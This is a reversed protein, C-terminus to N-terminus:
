ELGLVSRYRPSLGCRNWPVPKAFRLAANRRAVAAALEDDSLGFPDVLKIPGRLMRKQNAKNDAELKELEGFVRAVLARNKRSMHRTKKNLNKM